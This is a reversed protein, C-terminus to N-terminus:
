RARSTRARVSRSRKGKNGAEDLARIAYHYTTAPRLDTVTLKLRSGVGETSFSCLKGCLRKARRFDRASDIPRKSQVIIYRSVAPGKGRDSAVAAFLLRISRLTLPKARITTLRGPAIRDKLTRATAASGSPDFSGLNDGEDKAKIAYHYAAGPSLDTIKLALSDGVKDPSFSCTQDCLSRAADFSEETIPERSQKIVYGAVVPGEDGDSAVASFFLKIARHSVGEAVLDNVSAPAITDAHTTASAVNSMPGLNGGEDIAKLAYYYTSGPDLDKVDLSLAEGTQTPAFGCSSACLSRASSFSVDTIPQTSQKIVFDRAPAGEAGDEGPASFSLNLKRHSLASAALDAVAGPAVDKGLTKVNTAAMPGLKRGVKAKIAFYYNTHPQLNEVALRVEDGADKPPPDFTCVGGCLSKAEGFNAETIPQRSQNVIYEKAAAEDSGAVGSLSSAGFSLKIASGSIATARLNTVGSPTGVYTFRARSRATTASAASTGGANEIVVTVSGASHRLPVEARVIHPSVVEFDALVGGFAVKDVGIFGSGAIEVVGRGPVELADPFLSDVKPAPVYIDATEIAKVRRTGDRTTGSYDTTGGTVFVGYCYEAPQPARCAPGDLLTSSHLGRDTTDTFRWRDEVPDYIESFHDNIGTFVENFPPGNGAVLVSGDQLRTASHGARPANMVAAARWTGIRGTAPDPKSPNYIEASAM